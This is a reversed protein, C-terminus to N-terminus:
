SVRHYAGDSQKEFFCDGFESCDDCALNVVYCFACPYGSGYDEEFPKPCEDNELLFTICPMGQIRNVCCGKATNGYKSLKEVLNFDSYDYGIVRSMYELMAQAQDNDNIDVVVGRMLTLECRAEAEASLKKSMKFCRM